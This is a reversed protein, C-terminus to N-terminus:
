LLIWSRERAAPSEGHHPGLWDVCVAVADDDLDSDQLFARLDSLLSRVAEAPDLHRSSYLARRLATTSYDRDALVADYIGDTLIVLRDGPELQFDQVDYETGDLMGLPLQADLDIREVGDDRVRWMRPSGADIARVAGTVLDIQMLLTSVHQSGAHHSWIAQDALAAQTALNAGSRRANRLATIALTTLMAASTSEGMGNTVAVTLSDVDEAWDFNDGRIAYAPELQGALRYSACEVSRVPLLQWQMEAALTLRQPRRARRYRDTAVEALTIAHATLAAAEALEERTAEDPADPLRLWLVGLRDGRVTLPLHLAVEHDLPQQVHVQDCFVRGEVTAVLPIGPGEPELVPELVALRLDVLYIELGAVGFHHALVAELVGPLEHAPANRLARDICELRTPVTM